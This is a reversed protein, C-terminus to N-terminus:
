IRRATYPGYETTGLYNPLVPDPYSGDLMELDTDLTGESREDTPANSSPTYRTPLIATWDINTGTEDSSRSGAARALALLRDALNETGETRESSPERPPNRSVGDAASHNPMVNMSGDDIDREDPAQTSLRENVSTGESPSRARITENDSDDGEDLEEVCETMETDSFGELISNSWRPSGRHDEGRHCELYSAFEESSETAIDSMIDLDQPSAVSDSPDETSESAARFRALGQHFEDDSAEDSEQITEWDDDSDILSEPLSKREENSPSTAPQHVISDNSTADMSEVFEEVMSVEGGEPSEDQPSVEAEGEEEVEDGDGDDEAEEEVEEQVQQSSTARAAARTRRRTPHAYNLESPRSRRRTRGLSPDVQWKWATDREEGNGESPHVYGKWSAPKGISSTSKKRAVGKSILSSELVDKEPGVDKSPSSTKPATKKRAVGKPASSLEAANERTTTGKSSALQSPGPYNFPKGDAKKTKCAPCIWKGKPPETFGICDDDDLGFWLYPCQPAECQIWHGHYVGCNRCQWWDSGDPQKEGDESGSNSKRRKAPNGNSSDKKADM